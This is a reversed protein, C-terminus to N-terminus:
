ASKRRRLEQARSLTLHLRALEIPMAGGARMARYYDYGVNKSARWLTYSDIQPCRAMMLATAEIGSDKSRDKM